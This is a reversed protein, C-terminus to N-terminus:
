TTKFTGFGDAVYGSGTTIRLCEGRQPGTSNYSIHVWQNYEQILQDFAIGSNKVFQYWQEIGMGEIHTDAAMGKTHQSINIATNVGGVAANLRSCRYGSSIIIAAGAKQRLPELVHTCLATLNVVIDDTPQYQETIGLKDATDSHLLETITFHPSLYETTM